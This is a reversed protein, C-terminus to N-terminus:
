KVPENQNGNKKLREIEEAQNIIVLQEISMIKENPTLEYVKEQLRTVELELERIKEIYPEETRRVIELVSVNESLMRRLTSIAEAADNITKYWNLELAANIVVKRYDVPATGIAELLDSIRRLDKVTTEYM